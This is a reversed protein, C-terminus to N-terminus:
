SHPDVGAPGLARPGPTTAVTMGPAATEGLLEHVRLVADLRRKLSQQRGSEGRNDLERAISKLAAAREVLLPHPCRRVIARMVSYATWATPSREGDLRLLQALEDLANVLEELAADVDDALAAARGIVAYRGGPELLLAEDYCRVADRPRGAERCLKGLRCWGFANPRGQLGRVLYPFAQQVAGGDLLQSGLATSDDPALAAPLPLETRQRVAPM